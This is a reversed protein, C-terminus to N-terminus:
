IKIRRLVPVSYIWGELVYKPKERDVVFEEMAMISNIPRRNKALIQGGRRIHKILNIKKMQIDVSIRTYGQIDLFDIPFIKNYISPPDM